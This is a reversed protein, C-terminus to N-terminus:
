SLVAHAVTCGFFAFLGACTRSKSAFCGPPPHGLFDEDDLIVLQVHLEKMIQEVGLAVLGQLGALTQLREGQRALMLGSRIRISMWSGSIEPRSTVLHSFSSSSSAWIGTM